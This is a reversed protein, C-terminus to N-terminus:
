RATRELAGGPLGPAEARENGLSYIANLSLRSSRVGMICCYRRFFSWSTKDDFSIPPAPRINEVVTASV